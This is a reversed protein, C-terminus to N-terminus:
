ACTPRASEGLERAGDPTVRYGLPNAAAPISVPEDNADMEVQGNGFTVDFSDGKFPGEKQGATLTVGDVLAQGNANVLCVWVSGTATLRVIASPPPAPSSREPKSGAASKKGAKSGGRTAHKDGGKDSGATLGLVLVIGLIAVVAIAAIPLWGRRVAGAARRHRPPERREGIAIQRVPEAAPEAARSEDAADYQEVIAEADLDLYEAYTRVFARAYVPTPLRDWDEEEIARLYRERIRLREEVAELEIGQARRAASLQEGIGSAMRRNHIPM